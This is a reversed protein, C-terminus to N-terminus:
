GFAPFALDRQGIVGRRVLEVFCRGAAKVDAGADHADEFGRQFLIWHLEELRPWKYGYKGPLACYNTSAEMICLATFGELPDSGSLRVLEAGVTPLDFGVNHAVLGDAAGVAELFSSLVDQAPLGEELARATTIGHVRSAGEPITYDDPRVVYTTVPGIEGAELDVLSWAIQVIRPWNDTATSPLRYNDPLGTTETDFVLYSM